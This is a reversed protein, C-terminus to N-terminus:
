ACWEEESRGTRRKSFLVTYNIWKLKVHGQYSDLWFTNGAMNEWKITDKKAKLLQYNHCRFALQLKMNIQMLYMLISYVHFLTEFNLTLHIFIIHELVNTVQQQTQTLLFNEKSLISYSATPYNMEILSTINLPGEMRFFSQTFDMM